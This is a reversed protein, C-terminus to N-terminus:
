SAATVTMSLSADNDGTIWSNSPNQMALVRIRQGATLIGSWSSHITLAETTGYNSGRAPQISLGNVEFYFLGIAGAIATVPATIHIDVKVKQNANFTFKNTADYVTATGLTSISNIRIDMFDFYDFADPSFPFALAQLEEVVPPSSAGGTPTDIWSLYGSADSELIQNVTPGIQPWTLMYSSITVSADFTVSASNVSNYFRVFGAAGDLVGVEIGRETIIVGSNLRNLSDSKLLKGTTGDFIAIAGDAPAIAPGVVDGTGVSADEWTAQNVGDTTLVQGPTGVDWEQSYKAISMAGTNSLFLPSTSIGVAPLATPLIMTYSVAFPASPAELVFTKDGEANKVALRGVRGADWGGTTIIGVGDNNVEVGTNEQILKGTTDKYSVVMNAKTGGAPGAVDGGGKATNAAVSSNATVRADTYYLNVGESLETTSTPNVESLAEIGELKSRETATIIAGSGADTVDSHTAVPGDASVKATNATVVPCNIINNTQMDLDAQVKPELENMGSDNMEKLLPNHTTPSIDGSTNEYIVSDIDADIGTKNKSM